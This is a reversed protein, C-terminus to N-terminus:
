PKHPSIDLCQLRHGVCVMFKWVISCFGFNTTGNDKDPLPSHAQSRLPKQYSALDVWDAVLSNLEAKIEWM